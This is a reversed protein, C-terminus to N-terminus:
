LSSYDAQGNNAGTVKVAYDKMVVGEHNQGRVHPQWWYLGTFKGFLPHEDTYEKFHGRCLHVRNHSLPETSEHYGRKKGPLVVNLVHYDFIPVKGNKRRKKNLAGPASIKETQINKCNLLLLMYFLVARHHVGLNTVSDKRKLPDIDLFRNTIKNNKIFVEIVDTGVQWKKLCLDGVRHQSYLPVLLFSKNDGEAMDHVYMGFKVGDASLFDIWIDNYPLNMAVRNDIFMGKNPLFLHINGLHFKMSKKIGELCKKHIAAYEKWDENIMDVRGDITIVKGSFVTNELDGIVQHAYM